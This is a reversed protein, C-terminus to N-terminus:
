HDRIQEEENARKRARPAYQQRLPWLRRGVFYTPMDDLIGSFHTVSRKTNEREGGEERRRGRSIELLAAVGMPMTRFLRLGAITSTELPLM